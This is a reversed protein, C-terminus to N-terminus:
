NIGVWWERACTAIDEATPNETRILESCEDIMEELHKNCTTLDNMEKHRSIKATMPISVIIV